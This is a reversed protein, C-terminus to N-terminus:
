RDKISGQKQPNRSVNFWTKIGFQIIKIGKIPKRNKGKCVEKISCRLAKEVSSKQQWDIFIIEFRKSRRISWGFVESYSNQFTLNKVWIGKFYKRVKHM